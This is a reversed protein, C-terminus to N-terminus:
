WTTNIFFAYDGADLGADAMAQEVEQAIVGSHTRAAEGKEAVSDNWKFTKFLASIAKAAQMEADTLSAIQQKENADSTQITGNTAYVDDWRVTSSGLDKSNDVYNGNGNVPAIGASYCAIGGGAPSYIELGSSSSNNGISGVNSGDKRFDIFNGDTSQRNFFAPTGSVRSVVMGQGAKYSFGTDGTSNNFLSTNTTAVLLNGSSDLRMRETTGSNNYFRLSDDVGSFEIAAKDSGVTSVWGIKNSQELSMKHAPSSTGIGVSGSSDIRMAESASGATGTDFVLAAKGTVSDAVAKVAATVGSAGLDNGEFEVQGVVSGVILNTNTNEIRISQTGAGSLHFRQDPSVTGVGVRNNTTDVYLPDGDAGQSVSVLDSQKSM